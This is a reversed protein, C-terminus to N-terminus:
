EGGENESVLLRARQYLAEAQPSPQWSLAQELFIAAEQPLNYSLRLYGLQTATQAALARDQAALQNQAELKRWLEYGQIWFQTKTYGYAMTRIYLPNTPEAQLAANAYALAQQWLFQDFFDPNYKNDAQQILAEARQHYAAASLNAEVQIQPVFRWAEQAAVSAMLGLSAVIGIGFAIKNRV